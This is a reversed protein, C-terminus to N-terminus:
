WDSGASLAGPHPHPGGPGPARAAGALLYGGNLVGGGVDWGPDLDAVLGGGEAPRVATAVDFASPTGATQPVGPLRGPEDEMSYVCRPRLPRDTDRRHRPVMFKPHLVSSNSAWAIMSRASASPM